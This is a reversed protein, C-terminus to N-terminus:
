RSRRGRFGTADAPRLCARSRRTTPRRRLAELLPLSRARATPVGELLGWAGDGAAGSPAPCSITSPPLGLTPGDRGPRSPYPVRPSLSAKVDPRVEAGHPRWWSSGSRIGSSKDSCSGDLICRASRRRGVVAAGRRRGVRIALRCPGLYVTPDGVG